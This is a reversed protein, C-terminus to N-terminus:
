DVPQPPSWGGSLTRESYWITWNERNLSERDKATLFYLYRGDATVSGHGSVPLDPFVPLPHGWTGDARRISRYLQQIRTFYFEKGDATIFPQHNATTEPHRENIPLGLREARGWEGQKKRSVFIEWGLADGTNRAFYLASGDASLFPTDENSGTNVQPGLNKPRSWTGDARKTSM